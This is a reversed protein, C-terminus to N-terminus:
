VSLSIALDRAAIHLPHATRLQLSQLNQTASLHDVITPDGAIRARNETRRQSHEVGGYDWDVDEVVPLAFDLGGLGVQV